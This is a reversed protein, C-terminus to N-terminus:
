ADCECSILWTPVLASSASDSEIENSAPWSASACAAKMPIPAYALAMAANRPAPAQRCRSASAITHAAIAPPNSANGTRRKRPIHEERDRRDPEALDHAHHRVVERDGAPGFPEALMGFSTFVRHM